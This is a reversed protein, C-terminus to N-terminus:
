KGLKELIDELRYAECELDCVEENLNEIRREFHKKSCDYCYKQSYISGYQRFLEGAMITNNCNQCPYNRKLKRITYM